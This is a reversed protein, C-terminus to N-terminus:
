NDYEKCSNYDNCVLCVNYTVSLVNGVQTKTLDVYSGTCLDNSDKPNNIPEIYLNSLLVRATNNDWTIRDPYNAVYTITEAHMTDQYTEYAKRHANNLITTYSVVAVTSLLGVIIIAALLEVLTFGNKNM